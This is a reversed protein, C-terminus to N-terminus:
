PISKLNVFTRYHDRTYWASHDNGTVLREAGRHQGKRKPHVDWERYAIPARNSDYVPLRKERNEFVRGGKYGDPAHGNKEVYNWVERVRVPIADKEAAPTQQGVPQVSVRPNVSPQDARPTKHQNNYFRTIAGTLLVLGLILVFLNKYKQNM